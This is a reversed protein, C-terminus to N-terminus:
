LYSNLFIDRLEEERQTFHIKLVVLFNSIDLAPHSLCFGDFDIFFAMNESIFIQSLGLDGHVPCVSANHFDENSTFRNLITEVLYALDPLETILVEPGPHCYKRIHDNITKEEGSLPLSHLSSLNKAVSRVAGGLNESLTFDSLLKGHVVQQTVMGLESIYALPKAMGFSSDAGGRSASWLNQLNNFHKEGRKNRYIKGIIRRDSFGNRNTHLRYEVVCQKGVKHKLVQHSVRSLDSNLVDAFRIRMEENDLASKLEPLKHDEIIQM